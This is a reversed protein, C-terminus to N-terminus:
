LFIFIRLRKVTQKHAINSRLRHLASKCGLVHQVQDWRANISGRGRRRMREVDFFRFVRVFNIGRLMTFKVVAM